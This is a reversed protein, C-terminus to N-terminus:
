NFGNPLNKELYEMNENYSDCAMKLHVKKLETYCLKWVLEENKNYNIM